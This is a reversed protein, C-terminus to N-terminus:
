KQIRVDPIHPLKKGKINLGFYIQLIFNLLQKCKFYMGISM